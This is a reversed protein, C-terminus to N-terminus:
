YFELFHGDATECYTMQKDEKIWNWYFIQLKKLKM